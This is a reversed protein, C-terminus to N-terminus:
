VIHLRAGGDYPMSHGIVHGVDGCDALMDLAERVQHPEVALVIGGSTQADFVLDV